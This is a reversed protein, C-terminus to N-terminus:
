EHSSQHAKPAQSGDNDQGILADTSYFLANVQDNDGGEVTISGDTRFITIKEGTISNGGNLVRTNEGTLELINEQLSYLAKDSTAENDDFVIRVHGTALIMKINNNNLASSENSSITDKFFIKMNDATLITNKETATVKGSFEAYNNEKEFTLKDAMIKIQNAPEGTDLALIRQPSVLSLLMVAFFLLLGTWRHNVGMQEAHNNYCRM